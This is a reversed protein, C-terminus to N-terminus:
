STSAGESRYFKLIPQFAEFEKNILRELILFDGDRISQKVIAQLPKGSLIQNRYYCHKNHFHEFVISKISSMM